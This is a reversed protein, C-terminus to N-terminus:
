IMFIHCEICIGIVFHPKIASHWLYKSSRTISLFINFPHFWPLPTTKLSHKSILITLPRLILCIILCRALPISRTNYNITFSSIEGVSTFYKTSKLLHMSSWRIWFPIFNQFRSLNLNSYKNHILCFYSLKCCLTWAM